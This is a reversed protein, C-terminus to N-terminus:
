KILLMKKTQTFESTTMKYFYIGSSYKAGNWEIKNTGAAYEGDAITEILAGLSNYIEIKVRDTKPLSFLIATSPNFPNPYNQHLIYANPIENGNNSIGTPTINSGDYYIRNQGAGVWLVGGGFAGPSIYFGSVDPSTTTASNINTSVIIRSTPPLTFASAYIVTDNSTGKSVYSIRYAGQSEQCDIRGRDADFSFNAISGMNAWYPGSEPTYNYNVKKIGGTTQTWICAMENTQRNVAIESDFEPDSSAQNNFQTWTAATGFNTLAIRNIRLNPNSATIDNTYSVYISDYTSGHRYDIDLNFDNFTNRVTDQIWNLGGNITLAARLGTGVGTTANVFQFTVYWYTNSYNWYYSDAVISPNIHGFTAPTTLIQVANFGGGNADFVLWFLEGDFTTTSTTRVAAFGLKFTAASDAIFFDFSHWKYTGGPFINNIYTWTLGQDTSKMIRLSDRNASIYAAYKNGLSDVEFDLGAQTNNTPPTYALSNVVLVDGTGWDPLFPPNYNDRIAYPKNESSNVTFREPYDRVLKDALEKHLQENGSKRVELLQRWQKAYASNDERYSNDPNAEKYILSSSQSFILKTFFLILFLKKM